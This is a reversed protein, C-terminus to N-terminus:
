GRPDILEIWRRESLIVIVHGEDRLSMAAEIKRGFSSQKWAPSTQSGIILARVKRSIQNCVVSGHREALRECAARTGFNFTGTFCIGAAKLEVTADDEVPLSTPEATVSGTDAFDTGILRTLTDLLHSREEETVCGDSLIADVTAAIVKGPWAQTVEKHASLWTRLHMIELDHLHGDAAIGTVVGILESVSRSLQHQAISRAIGENM